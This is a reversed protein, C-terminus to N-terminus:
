IPAHFPEEYQQYFVSGFPPPRPRSTEGHASHWLGVHRLIKEIVVPDRIVALRRVKGGCLECKTLDLGFAQKAIEAWSARQTAVLRLKGSEDRAKPKPVLVVSRRLKANPALVGFYRILHGNPPPVAAALKECLEVGSLQIEVTGDSWPRKMRYRVTGDDAFSLRENALPPRTIYRVLRALKRRQHEKVAKDAKLNFWNMEAVLEGRIRATGPEIHLRIRRVPQGAREGFAILNKVSAGDCLVVANEDDINTSLEGDVLFGNKELSKFSKLAIKEVVAAVDDSTLSDGISQFKLEKTQEDFVYGGDLFIGHFHVNLNLSGGLRQIVLIGGTKSNKFGQKRLKRVILGCIESYFVQVLTNLMDRNRACLFRLPMPLSLVWQRAPAKPFVEEVISIESENMRRGCCSPCFGRRKCSFALLKEHRCDICQIRTFGNELVGCDFFAQFEEEVYAPLSKGKSLLEKRFAGINNELIAYLLTKEPARRNYKIASSNM